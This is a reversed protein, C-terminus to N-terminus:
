DALRQARQGTAAHPIGIASTWIDPVGPKGGKTRSVAGAREMAALAKSAASRGIGATAAIVATTAGGPRAALVAYIAAAPSDHNPGTGPVPVPLAASRAAALGTAAVNKRRAM